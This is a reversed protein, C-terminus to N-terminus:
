SNKVTYVSTVGIQYRQAIESPIIDKKLDAKIKSVVEPTLKRPRGLKKGQKKAAAIGEAQRERITAREFEAFAGLLNFMFAQMPTPSSTDNFVINEKVFSVLVQKKQLHEVIEYLDRLSRALRDISHIFLTDGERLWNLCEELVPRKRNKGSEKEEFIKDLKIDTLQRELNQTNSSVRIYGVKAM